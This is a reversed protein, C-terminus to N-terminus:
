KTAIVILLSPLKREKMTKCIETHSLYALCTSTVAEGLIPLLPLIPLFLNKM